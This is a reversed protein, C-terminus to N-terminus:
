DACAGATYGVVDTNSCASCANGYTMLELTECPTTVCRVGTDRAGCVPRFDQTCLEPRPEVCQVFGEPLAAIPETEASGHIGLTVGFVLSPIVGRRFSSPLRM